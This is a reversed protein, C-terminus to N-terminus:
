WQLLTGFGFSFPLKYNKKSMRFSTFFLKLWSNQEYFCMEFSVCTVIFLSSTSQTYCVVNSNRKGQNHNWGSFSLLIHIPLKGSIKIKWKWKRKKKKQWRMRYSKSHLMKEIERDEARGRYRKRNRHELMKPMCKQTMSPVLACHNLMLTFQIFTFNSQFISQPLAYTQLQKMRIAFGNIKQAILSMHYFHIYKTGGRICEMEIWGGYTRRVYTCLFSLCWYSQVNIHFTSTPVINAWKLAFHFLYNGFSDLSLLRTDTKIHFFLSFCSETVFYFTLLSAFLHRFYLM